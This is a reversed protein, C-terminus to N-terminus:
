SIIIIISNNKDIGNIFNILINSHINEIMLIKLQLDTPFFFFVINFM